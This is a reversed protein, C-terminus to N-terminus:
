NDSRLPHDSDTLQQQLIASPASQQLVPHRHLLLWHWCQDFLIALEDPSGVTTVLQGEKYIGFCGFVSMIRFGTTNPLEAPIFREENSPNMPKRRPCYQILLLPRSSRRQNKQSRTAAMPQHSAMLQFWYLLYDPIQRDNNYCPGSTAGLLVPHGGSLRM